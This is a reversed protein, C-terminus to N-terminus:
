VSTLFIFVVKNYFHPSMLRGGTPVCRTYFFFVPVYSGSVESYADMCVPCSVAGPTSRLVACHVLGFTFTIYLDLFDLCLM